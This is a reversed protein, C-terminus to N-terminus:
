PIERYAISITATCAVGAAVSYALAAQIRESAPVLASPINFVASGFFGGFVSFRVRAAEASPNGHYLVLEYVGDVTGARVLTSVTVTHLLFPNNITSVPVVDALNGLAWSTTNSVITAGVALTPYVLVPKYHDDYMRLLRYALSGVVATGAGGSELSIGEIPWIPTPTTM